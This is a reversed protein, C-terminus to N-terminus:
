IRLDYESSSAANTTLRFGSKMLLEVDNGVYFSGIKKFKQQIKKNFLNFIKKSVDSESMIAIKSAIITNTDFLGGLKLLICDKNELLDISYKLENNNMKISRFNISYDMKSVLYDNCLNWDGAKAQGYFPIQSIINYVEIIQKDYFGVKSYKLNDLDNFIEDLDLKTAYFFTQKSKM